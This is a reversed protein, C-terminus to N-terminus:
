LVGSSDKFGLNFTFKADDIERFILIGPIIYVIFLIIPMWLYQQIDPQGGVNFFFDGFDISAHILILIWISQKKAYVMCFTFGIAITYCIQYLVYYIDEGALINMLHTAGFLISSIIASLLIGFKRKEFVSTLFLFIGGRFVSEEFFSVMLAAIISGIVAVITQGVPLQKFLISLSDSFYFNIFLTLLLPFIMMLWVSRQKHSKKVTFGYQIRWVKRGVWFILLGVFFKEIPFPIMGLQNNEENGVILNSSPLFTALMFAGLVFALFFKKKM